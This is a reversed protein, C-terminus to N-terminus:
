HEFTWSKLYDFAWIRYHEFLWISLYEFELINLYELKWINLHESSWIKFALHWIAVTSNARVMITQKSAILIDSTFTTSKQSFPHIELLLYTRLTNSTQIWSWLSHGASSTNNLVAVAGLRCWIPHRTVHKRWPPGCTNSFM